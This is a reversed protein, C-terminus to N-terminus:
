AKKRYDLPLLGFTDQFSASFKSANTYGVNKAIESVNMETNLLYEAAKEMRHEKIHAAISSGYVSKFGEKLTTTNMLFHKSLEEITIRESLHELLYDHIKHFIEEHETLNETLHEEHSCLVEKHTPCSVQMIQEIAHHLTRAVETDAATYYVEKGNRKSEILNASKLLKLHHSLAPSSIELISALDIVCEETHCLKLFIQLRTPDDLLKFLDALTQFDKDTPLNNNHTHLLM